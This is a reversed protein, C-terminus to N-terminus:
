RAVEVSPQLEGAHEDAIRVVGGRLENTVRARLSVSTGNSRLTIEDGNRIGRAHADTEAIQVEALPRQFQLEPVREVAAGSFLPRYRVLRLGDDDAPEPLPETEPAAPAEAPAPLRAHEGVAGFPVGGFTIPSVEDFVVSPYPPLAVDFREGLKAIWALEDPAPPIVARRLRQLRGELNVYTGDRELYSTGPLVLDAWGAALGHFMSVAIVREAKEALARVDPNAAAEDGSVFLLGIPEVEGPETDAAAAWADCVGRGNATEPLWFVGRAGLRKALAAVRAGGQGGPGSWILVAHEAGRVADEDLEYLVRAGGRKAQKIWLEVIPAREVVPADGLVAVVDADAISSLPMRLPDLADSFEDPLVAVHSDLGRRLLKALAYAHEVTESGSLATVIRGHAERLLREAEDVARDWSVEEFGRRRVRLLPDTLRDEARVHSFAFRGKDCLWGQDVEPHNRSLIRKVKGERTTAHINCGVPCLGCVTPVNQIEWPRAQFRYQTSTLAGVPCLEIVNGSFHARYPEDEFTAIMSQAGRNRAILQGDEAVTESFRTCRYCLICRERDLAILPSIPIPKDFTRKPFDMRSSGPGYRFTLDQLPCEGGKDCVPCDLPHNVLIFELTADQSERASDSTLATKVDMGDQATLTCAAQPKPPGPAVECLCMRCAGIPPGLRPEYCFVPIEIGAALAAEVLGTGKPVTVKRGDITLTVTEPASMRPDRRDSPTHARRDAGRHRRDVVPRRVSLTGRRRAAPVRRPVEAPVVVGPVGRLRRARVALTRAHPQLRKRAARPRVRGRERGRDTDVVARALADGRPVAHM